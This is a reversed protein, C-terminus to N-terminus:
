EFQSLNSEDLGWSTIVSTNGSKIIAFSHDRNSIVKKVEKLNDNRLRQPRMDGFGSLQFTENSGTNLLITIYNEGIDFDKVGTLYINPYSAFPIQPSAYDTYYGKVKGYNAAPYSPYEGNDAHFMPGNKPLIYTKGGNPSTNFSVWDQSVNQITIPNTQYNIEVWGADIFTSTALKESWNDGYNYSAWLNNGSAIAVLYAGEAFDQSIYRRGTDFKGIWDEPGGISVCRWKKSGLQTIQSWNQGYDNSKWIYGDQAGVIQYKGGSSIAACTWSGNGLSTKQTWTNGTDDSTYIYENDTFALMYKGRISNQKAIEQGKSYALGRWNKILGKGTWSSFGNDSTIWIDGQNELLITKHSFGSTPLNAASPANFLSARLDIDYSPNVRIFSGVLARSSSGNIEVGTFPTTYASPPNDLHQAGSNILLKGGSITVISLGNHVSFSSFVGSSSPIGDPWYPIWKNINYNMTSVPRLTNSQDYSGFGLLHSNNNQDTYSAVGYESIFNWKGSPFNRGSDVFPIVRWDKHHKAENIFYVYPGRGVSSYGPNIWTEGMNGWGTLVDGSLLAFSAQFDAGIKKVGTLLNGGTAALRSQNWLTGGSTAWTKSGMPYVWGTMTWGTITNNNLLALGHVHGGDIDIVGTLDLAVKPMSASYAAGVIKKEQGGIAYGRGIKQVGPLTVPPMDANFINLTSDNNVVWSVGYNSVSSKLYNDFVVDGSPNLKSETVKISKIDSLAM